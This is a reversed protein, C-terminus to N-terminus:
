YHHPQRNITVSAIETSRLTAATFAGLPHPRHTESASVVTDQEPLELPKPPIHYPMFIFSFYSM